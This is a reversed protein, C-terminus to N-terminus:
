ELNRIFNISGQPSPSERQKAPKPDAQQWRTGIRAQRCADSLDDRATPYRV